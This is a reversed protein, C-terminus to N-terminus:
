KHQANSEISKLRAKGSKSIMLVAIGSERLDNELALAKEKPAFFAEIGYKIQYLTRNEYYRKQNVRGRIFIGDQPKEFSLKYFAYINNDTPLMQAYIIEGNRIKKQTIEKPIELESIDYRLRAYNGRFLSRPDVPITKIRIETGTWLPSASLTVMGVLVCLQFAVTLILLATVKNKM